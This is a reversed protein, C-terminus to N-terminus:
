FNSFSHRYLRELINRIKEAYSTDAAWTGALGEIRPSSGLKVYRYRPDVLVGKLPEETAYGKLHQIHARVGTRADPFVEGPNGPGTSGLGCFNNMDPTVLGGFGLFGTELCMQAFAADANVGEAAAEETYIRALEYIYYSGFNGRNEKILFSALTEDPIRGRGMILEPIRSPTEPPVRGAPAEPSKEPPPAREAEREAPRPSVTEPAKEVVSLSTCSLFVASVLLSFGFFVALNKMDISDSNLIM